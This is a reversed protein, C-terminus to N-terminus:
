ADNGARQFCCKKERERRLLGIQCVLAEDPLSDRCEGKVARRNKPGFQLAQWAEWGKLGRVEYIEGVIKLRRRVFPSQRNFPLM